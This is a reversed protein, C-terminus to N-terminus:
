ESISISRPDYNADSPEVPYEKELVGAVSRVDRKELQNVGDRWMREYERALVPKERMQYYKDLSYWLPINEYGDPFPMLEAIRYTGTITDSPVERVVVETSSNRATIEFWLDSIESNKGELTLYAGIHRKTFSASGGGLVATTGDTLTITGTTYDAEGLDRVKKTFGVKVTNGASSPIPYLEIRRSINNINWFYPVDGTVSVYNIKEWDKDSRIEKPSYKVSGVTVNVYDIKSANPPPGYAQKRTGTTYEMSDRNFTFDSRSLIEKIGMNMLSYGLTRNAASSDNSLTVFDTGAQLFIKAM